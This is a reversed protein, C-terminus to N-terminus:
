RRTSHVSQIYRRIWLTNWFNLSSNRIIRHVTDRTIKLKHEAFVPSGDGAARLTESAMLLPWLCFLRIRAEILPVLLTFRMADELHSQAKRILKQVIRNRPATPAQPSLFDPASDFGEECMWDLPIFCVQRQSDERIDKIINTIQLGLGFSVSLEKMRRYRRASIWPSLAYFLDCLMNGVVGAVYYCYLDLDKESSILLWEGKARSQRETFSSMGSCMEAVCRAIPIRIKEQFHLYLNAIWGVHACLFRNDDSSTNWSSPLAQRFEELHHLSTDRDAVLFASAFLQLLEQKQPYDLEPDDEITDAIRCFLYALLVPRRLRKPLVHINLAFTRSVRQLMEVAYEWPHECSDQDLRIGLLHLQNESLM